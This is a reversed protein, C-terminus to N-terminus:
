RSSKGPLKKRSIVRKRPGSADLLGGILGLDIRFVVAPRATKSKKYTTMDVWVFEDLRGGLSPKADTVLRAFRADGVEILWQSGTKLKGAIPAFQPDWSLDASMSQIRRTWDSIKAALPTSIGSSTLKLVVALQFAQWNNFVRHNGRGPEEKVVTSLVGRALAYRAQDYDVDIRECIMKLKMGSNGINTSKIPVSIM